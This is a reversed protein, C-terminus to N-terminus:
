AQGGVSQDWVASFSADVADAFLGGLASGLRWGSATRILWRAGDPADGVFLDGLARAADLEDDLQM